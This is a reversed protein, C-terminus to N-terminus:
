ESTPATNLHKRDMSKLMTTRARQGLYRVLRESIFHQPMNTIEWRWLFFFCLKIQPESFAQPPPESFPLVNFTQELSFPPQRQVLRGNHQSPLIFSHRSALQSLLAEQTASSLVTVIVGM